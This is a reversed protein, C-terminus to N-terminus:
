QLMEEFQFNVPEIIISYIDGFSNRVIFLSMGKQELEKEKM